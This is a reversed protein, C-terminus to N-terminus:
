DLEKVNINLRELMEIQGNLFAEKKELEGAKIALESLLESTSKVLADWESIKDIKIAAEELKAKREAYKKENFFKFM